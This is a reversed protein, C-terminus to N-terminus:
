SIIKKVENYIIENGTRNMHNMNGKNNLFINEYKFVDNDYFSDFFTIHIMKDSMKKIENCILSNTYVFYNPEFIHSYFEFAIKMIPDGTHEQVDSFILDCNKHLLDDKHIPHESIPIRYASTHSVIIHDYDDFNQGELQKMIKYESVGAQAVNKIVYDNELLNVWGAGNYKIRWNTAFSDGAILIKKM